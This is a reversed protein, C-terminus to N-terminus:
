FLRKVDYIRVEVDGTALPDGLDDSATGQLSILHETDATVTVVSFIMVIAYVMLLMAVRKM